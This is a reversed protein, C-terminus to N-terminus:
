NKTEFMLVRLHRHKWVLVTGIVWGILAGLTTMLIQRNDREFKHWTQSVLVTLFVWCFSFYLYQCLSYRSFKSLAISIAISILVWKVDIKAPKTDM